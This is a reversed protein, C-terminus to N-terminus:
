KRKQKSMRDILTSQTTTKDNYIADLIVLSMTAQAEKQLGPKSTSM